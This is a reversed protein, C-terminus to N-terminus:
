ARLCAGLVDTRLEAAKHDVWGLPNYTHLTDGNTAPSTAGAQSQQQQQPQQQM